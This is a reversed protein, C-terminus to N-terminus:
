LAYSLTFRRLRANTHRRLNLRVQCSREHFLGLQQRPQQPAELPPVEVRVLLVGGLHQGDEHLHTATRRWCSLSAFTCLPLRPSQPIPSHPIPRVPAMAQLPPAAAQHKLEKRKARATM